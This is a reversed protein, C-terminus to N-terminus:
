SVGWFGHGIKLPTTGIPFARFSLFMLNTDIMDQTRAQALQHEAELSVFQSTGGLVSFAGRVRM